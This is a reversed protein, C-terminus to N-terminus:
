KSREITETLIQILLQKAESEKWSRISKLAANCYTKALFQTQELGNSALVLNFARDVDGDHSFRRKILPDLEEFEDAAFLV